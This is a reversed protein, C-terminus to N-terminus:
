RTGARAADVLDAATSLASAVSRAQNPELSIPSGSAGMEILVVPPTDDTQYAEVTMSPWREGDMAEGDGTNLVPHAYVREDVLQVGLTAWPPLEDLVFVRGSTVRALRRLSLEDPEPPLGGLLLRAASDLDAPAVVSTLLSRGATPWGTEVLNACADAYGAMDGQEPGDTGAPLPVLVFLNEHGAPAVTPDSATPRCVYM